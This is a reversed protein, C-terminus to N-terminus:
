YPKIEIVSSDPLIDIFLLTGDTKFPIERGMNDLVIVTPWNEPKKLSLSIKQDYIKDDMQDDLSMEIFYKRNRISLVAADRQYIYKSIHAFTDVWFGKEVPYLVTKRFVKDNLANWGMQSDSLTGNDVGHYSSVFWSGKELVDDIVAKWQEEEQSILIGLANVKYMDSPPNSPIGGKRKYYYSILGNGSRGSLYYKSAASLSETNERWHPWCFTEVKVGSLNKELFDRSGKLEQELDVGSATLDMHNMSHSGIEHGAAAIEAANSWNMMQRMTGNDNWMGEDILKAALYFTGKIGIEELIPFAAAYQDYTGDDFTISAAAPSFGSWTAITGEFDFDTPIIFEEPPLVKVIIEEQVIEEDPVLCSPLLILILFGTLISKSLNNCWM